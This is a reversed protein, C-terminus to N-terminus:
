FQLKEPRGAQRRKDLLAEVKNIATQDKAAYAKDLMDAIERDSPLGDDVADMPIDNSGGMRARLKNLVRIQEGSVAMTKFAELDGESFEGDAHLGRAWSEVARVVAPANDGIKAYEAKKIESRQEDTLEPPNAAMEEAHDVLKDAMEAMFGAYQEQSLGYKHAVEKGANVIPDDEPIHQSATESFDITYDDAKEPAKQVGKGLKSRLDNARQEQKKMADYMAKVNPTNTEEDWFEDALGEPKEGSTFDMDVGEGDDLSDLLSDSSADETTDQTSTDGTDQSDNADQTTDETTDAEATETNTEDTM